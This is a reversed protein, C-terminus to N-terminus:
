GILSRLSGHEAQLRERPGEAQALRLRLRAGLRTTLLRFAAELLGEKDGFYHAVLGPSVGARGAIQILTTGVFGVEALSDITMEVLQRARGDDAIPSSRPM